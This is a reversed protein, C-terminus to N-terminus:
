IEIQSDQDLNSHTSNKEPDQWKEHHCTLQYSLTLPMLREKRLFDQQSVYSSLFSQNETESDMDVWGTSFIITQDFTPRWTWQKEQQFREEDILQYGESVLKTQTQHLQWQIASLSQNLHNLVLNEIGSNVLPRPFDLWLDNENVEVRFYFLDIQGLEDENLLFSQGLPSDTWTTMDLSIDLQNLFEIRSNEIEQDFSALIKEPNNFLDAQVMMLQIKSLYYNEFLQNRESISQQVNLLFLYLVQCIIMCIMIYPFVFAQKQKSVIGLKLPLIKQKCFFKVM